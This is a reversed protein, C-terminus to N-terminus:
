SASESFLSSHLAEVARRCDERAVVATVSLATANSLYVDIKADSLAREVSLIAGASCAFGSGVVSVTGLDLRTEMRVDDGPYAGIRAELTEVDNLNLVLSFVTGDASSERHYGIIQLDSRALETMLSDLEASAARVHLRVLAADPNCTISTPKPDEMPVDETVETGPAEEFSSLLRLPVKYRRAIEAARYHLVRAGRAALELM